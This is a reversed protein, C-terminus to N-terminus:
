GTVKKLRATFGPHWGTMPNQWGFGEGDVEWLGDIGEIQVQEHAGIVAGAPAYLTVVVEVGERANASLDRSSSPAMFCGRIVRGDGQPARDGYRDLEGKPTVTISLM